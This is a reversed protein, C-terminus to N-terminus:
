DVVGPAGKETHYLVEFRMRGIAVTQEGSADQDEEFAIPTVSVCRGGLRSDGDLATEVEKAILDVTDAYGTTAKVCAEVVLMLRRERTKQILTQSQESQTFVRLGPLDTDQMPLAPSNKVRAGTTTLGTLLTIAADRIQKRVHYVTAM